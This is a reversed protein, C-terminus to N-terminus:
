LMGLLKLANDRGVKRLEEESLFELSELFNM